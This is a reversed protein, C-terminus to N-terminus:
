KGGIAGRLYLNQITVYDGDNAEIRICNEVGAGGRLGDGTQASADIIPNGGTGYAGLVIRNGSSGNFDIYVGEGGSGITWTDGRKLYINDGGNYHTSNIKSITQWPLAVTGLGTNDDGSTSFYYDAGFCYPTSIILCLLISVLKKM